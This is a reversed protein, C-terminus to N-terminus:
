LVALPCRFVTPRCAKIHACGTHIFHTSLQATRASITVLGTSQLQIARLPSRSFPGCPGKENQSCSKAMVRSAGRTSTATSSPNSSLYGCYRQLMFGTALHYPHATSDGHQERLRLKDIVIAVIRFEASQILALLADNFGRRISDDQLRLFSGRQNVIDERHLVVPEDPHHPLHQRKFAELERQFDLYDPNKFWCGLLCLFRHQAQDLKNFVHDGSRTSGLESTRGDEM